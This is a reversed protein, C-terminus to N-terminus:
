IEEEKPAEPLSMWYFTEADTNYFGVGGDFGTWTDVDIYGNVCVLVKEEIDPCVGDWMFGFTSGFEEREEDTLPRTTVKNWKM